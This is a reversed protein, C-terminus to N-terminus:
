NAIVRSLYSLRRGCCERIHITIQINESKAVDNTGKVARLEVCQWYINDMQLSRIHVSFYPLDAPFWQDDM